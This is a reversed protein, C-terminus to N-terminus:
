PWPLYISCLSSVMFEWYRILDSHKSDVFVILYVQDYFWVSLLIISMMGKKIFGNFQLLHMCSMPGLVIDVYHQIADIFDVRCLPVQVSVNNAWNPYSTWCVIHLNPFPLPHLSCFLSPHRRLTWVLLREQFKLGEIVLTEPFNTYCWDLTKWPLM